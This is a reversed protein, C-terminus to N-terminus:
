GLSTYLAALACVSSDLSYSSEIKARAARSLMERKQSNRLLRNIASSLSFSNGFRFTAGTYGEKVLDLCRPTDPVIAPVGFSMFRAANLPIVSPRLSPLVFCFSATACEDPMTGVDFSVVSRGIGLACALHRVYPSIDPPTEVYAIIRRDRVLGSVASLFLSCEEGDVCFASIIPLSSHPAKLKPPWINVDVGYPVDIISGSRVGARRFIDRDSPSYSLTLSLRARPSLASLVRGLTYSAYYDKIAVLDGRSALFSAISGCVSGHSHVIASGSRKLYRGIIYINRILNEDDRGLPLATLKVRTGNLISIAPIGEPLLIELDFERNMREAFSKILYVKEIDTCESIVHTILM